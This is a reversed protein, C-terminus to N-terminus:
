RQRRRARQRNRRDRARQETLREVMQPYRISRFRLADLFAVAQGGVLVIRREVSLPELARVIREVEQHPLPPTAM